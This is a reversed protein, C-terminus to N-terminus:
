RRFILVEKNTGTKSSYPSEKNYYKKEATCLM